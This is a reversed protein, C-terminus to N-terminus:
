EHQSECSLPEGLKTDYKAVLVLVVIVLIVIAVELTAQIQLKV